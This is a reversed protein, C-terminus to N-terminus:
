NCYVVEQINGLVSRDEDTIYFDITKYNYKPAHISNVLDMIDNWKKNCRRVVFQCSYYNSDKDYCVYDISNQEFLKCLQEAKESTDETRGYKFTLCRERVTEM